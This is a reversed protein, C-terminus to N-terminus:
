ESWGTATGSPATLHARVRTIRIPDNTKDLAADQVPEVSAGQIRGTTSFTLGALSAGAAMQSLFNRRNM